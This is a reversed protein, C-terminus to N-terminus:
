RARLVYFYDKQEAILGERWSLLSVGRLVVAEGRAIGLAASARRARRCRVDLEWVVLDPTGSICRTVFEVGDNSDFLDAYFARIQTKDVNVLGFLHATLKADDAYLALINDLDLSNFTSELIAIVGHAATM